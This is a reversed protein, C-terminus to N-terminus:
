APATGAPVPAVGLCTVVSSSSLRVEYSAQTIDSTLQSAQSTLASVTSYGCQVLTVSPGSVPARTTPATQNGAITFNSRAGAVTSATTVTVVVPGVYSGPEPSLTPQVLQLAVYSTPPAIVEATKVWTTNDLIELTISAGDAVGSLEAFECWGNGLTTLFAKDGDLVRANYSVSANWSDDRYCVQIGLGGNPM